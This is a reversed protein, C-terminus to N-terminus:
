GDGQACADAAADIVATWGNPPRGNIKDSNSAWTPSASAYNTRYQMCTGGNSSKYTGVLASTGVGENFSPGPLTGSMAGFMNITLPGYFYLNGNADITVSDRGYGISKSQGIFYSTWPKNNSNGSGSAQLVISQIDTASLQTIAVVARGSGDVSNALTPIGQAFAGSAVLSTVILLNTGYSKQMNYGYM